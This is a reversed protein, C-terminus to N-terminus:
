GNEIMKLQNKIMKQWKKGNKSFKQSITIDLYAGLQSQFFRDVFGV